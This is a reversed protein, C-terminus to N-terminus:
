YRMDNQRCRKLGHQFLFKGFDVAADGVNRSLMDFLLHTSKEIAADTHSFNESTDNSWFNLIFVLHIWFINQYYNDLFPRVTIEETENAQAILSNIYLLFSENLADLQHNVFLSWRFSEFSVKILAYEQKMEEILTFYFALLKERASYESYEKSDNLRSITSVLLQSWIEQQLSKLSNFHNNFDIENVFLYKCLRHSSSPIVGVRICYDKYGSIFFEKSLKETTIESMSVSNTM